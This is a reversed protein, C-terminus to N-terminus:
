KRLAPSQKAGLLTIGMTANFGANRGRRVCNQKSVADLSLGSFAALEKVTTHFADAVARPSVFGSDDILDMILASM